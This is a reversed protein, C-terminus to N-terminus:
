YNQYYIYIFLALFTFLLTLFAVVAFMLASDDVILYTIRNILNFGIESFENEGANIAHFFPDYVYLYDTGVDYRLASILFLPLFSLVAWIYYSKKLSLYPKVNMAFKAFLVALVTGIVYIHM